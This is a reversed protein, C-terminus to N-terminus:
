RVIPRLFRDVAYEGVRRGLEAGVGTSFRFHFGAWVRANSVEDVYDQLRTWHHIVGPATPSTLRFERITGSGFVTQLVAAAAACIACHACPYEPHEPTFLGLPAWTADRETEPDGDIDGNRIATIPRWFDYTFKADYVAIAADNAAVSLLAFLRANEITSLRAAKALQLAIPHYTGPGVFFWFRGTETQIATRTASDDRGVAKIENYDATWERSTFAIPPGPRFQSASTLVFPTMKMLTTGVVTTPVYQGRTTIPRYDDVAEIGDHERLTWIADAVRRGLEVGDSKGRGDPIQALVQRLADELKSRVGPDVDGHLRILLSAAAVSAAAERSTTPAAEVAVRYPEYRRDIANVCQFMALNMMALDRPGIARVMTLAKENWDTIVDACLPAASGLVAAAALALSRGLTSM